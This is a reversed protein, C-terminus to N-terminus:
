FQKGCYNPTGTIDNIRKIFAFCVKSRSVNYFLYFFYFRFLICIPLTFYIKIESLTYYLWICLLATSKNRNHDSKLSYRTRSFHTVFVNVRFLNKTVLHIKFTSQRQSLQLLDFIYHVYSFESLFRQAYNLM